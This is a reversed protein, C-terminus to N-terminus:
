RWQSTPATLVEFRRKTHYSCPLSYTQRHEATKVSRLLTVYLYASVIATAYVVSRAIRRATFFLCVQAFTGTWGLGDDDCLSKVGYSMFANDDDTGNIHGPSAALALSGYM